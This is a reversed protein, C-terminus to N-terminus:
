ARGKSLRNLRREITNQAIHRIQRQVLQRDMQSLGLAARGQPDRQGIQRACPIQLLHGARQRAKGIETDIHRDFTQDGGFNRAALQRPHGLIIHRGTRPHDRQRHAFVTRTLQVIGRIDVQNAQKILVPEVGVIIMVGTRGKDTHGTLHARDQGVDGAVAIHKAGIQAQAGIRLHRRDTHRHRRGLGIILADPARPLAGRMDLRTGTGTIEVRPPGIQVPQARKHPTFMQIERGNLVGMVHTQGNAIMLPQVARQGKAAMVQLQALPANALNLEEGLGALDNRAPAVGIQPHAARYLPQRSQGVLAPDRLLDGRGQGLIVAGQTLDLVTQLHDVVGLRM